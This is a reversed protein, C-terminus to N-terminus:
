TVTKSYHINKPNRVSGHMTQKAAPAFESISYEQWALIRAYHRGRAFPLTQPRSHGPFRRVIDVEVM